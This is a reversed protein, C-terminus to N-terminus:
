PRPNVSQYDQIFSEAYIGVARVITRSMDSTPSSGFGGRSWTRASQVCVNPDRDLRANQKVSVEINWVYSDEEHIKATRAKVFLYSSAQQSEHPSLLRIGGRRLRSEIESRLKAETLGDNVAEDYPNMVLVRIGRLGRLSEVDADWFENQAETIIVVRKALLDSTQSLSTQLNVSLVFVWFVLGFVVKPQTM